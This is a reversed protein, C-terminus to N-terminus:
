GDWGQVFRLTHGDPDDVYFERTGWTQDVPAAHVPSRAAVAPPVVLGRARFRAVDADVGSTTVIIRQEPGGDGRHSSLALPAGDRALVVFGPDHLGDGDGGVRVFDLIETYFALSTRLSQCRLIPIIPM